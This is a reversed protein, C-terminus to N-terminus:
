SNEIAFRQVRHNWCDAVYLNGHRDFSLGTPVNFQHARGGMGNGGVIVTAMGECWRTIRNNGRNFRDGGEAVYVRGMDDVFLGEPYSVQTHGSGKGQGGAVVIGENAGKKWKMVRHNYTDSVYVSYEQDVFVFYPEYLQDLRNGQGNGGAVITGTSYWMKYRRVEHKERDTVYLNKQDDMTLGWCRINDILIEGSKTGEQCSWRMVRGNKYDCIILSDTEKDVIVDTPRDLQNMNNGQGNGGAVVKRITADRKVEVIRHNWFDAIYVTEDNHIYLGQPYYLEHLASGKGHIGAITVGNQAWRVICALVIVILNILSFSWSYRHTINVVTM